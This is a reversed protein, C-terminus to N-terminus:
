NIFKILRYGTMLISLRELNKRMRTLNDKVASEKRGNEGPDWLLSVTV